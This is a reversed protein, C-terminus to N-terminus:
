TAPGVLEKKVLPPEPPGGFPAVKEVSLTYELSRWVLGWCM